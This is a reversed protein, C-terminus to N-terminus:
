STVPLSWPARYPRSTMKAVDDDGVVQESAPDWHVTKGSRIAINGLHCVTASRHGIAVDCIPLKRSRICDLWNDHHNQSVYLHVDSDGLPEDIISAPKSELKDRSVFITGDAGEFTTGGRQSQGCILTTGDAYKYTVECWEPVEFQKEANYRATGVASVPGNEDMGLGWQAIDLHHAGWNTM